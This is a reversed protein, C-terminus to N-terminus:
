WFSGQSSRVGSDEGLAIRMSPTRTRQGRRGCLGIIRGDARALALGVPGLVEAIRAAPDQDGALPGALSEGVM